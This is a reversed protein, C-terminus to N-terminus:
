QSRAEDCTRNLQIYDHVDRVWWFPIFLRQGAGDDLLKIDGGAVQDVRGLLKGCAGYVEMQERISSPVQGPLREATESTISRVMIEDKILILNTM